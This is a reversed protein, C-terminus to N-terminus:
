TQLSASPDIAIGCSTSGAFPLRLDAYAVTILCCPIPQILLPSVVNLPLASFWVARSVNSAIAPCGAAVALGCTPLRTWHWPGNGDHCARPDIKLVFRSYTDRDDELYICLLTTSIDSRCRYSAKTRDGAQHSRTSVLRGRETFWQCSKRSPPLLEFEKQSM